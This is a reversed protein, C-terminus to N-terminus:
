PAARQAPLTTEFIMDIDASQKDTIAIEARDDLWWKWRDRQGEAPRDAQPQQGPKQQGRDRATARDPMVRFVLVALCCATQRAM